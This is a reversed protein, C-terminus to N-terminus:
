LKCNRFRTRKQHLYQYLIPIITRINFIILSRRGKGNGSIINGIVQVATRSCAVRSVIACTVRDCQDCGFFFAKLEKAPATCAQCATVVPCHRDRRAAAAFSM